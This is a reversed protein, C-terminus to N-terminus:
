KRKLINSSSIDETCKPNQQCPRKPQYLLTACDPPWGTADNRIMRSIIKRLLQNLSGKNVNM